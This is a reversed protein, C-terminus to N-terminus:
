FDLHLRLSFVCVPGRDQNYGPNVIRQVDGSASVGRWLHATYYGEVISERAYHLDGDGLIFGKGGLRLYTEHEQSIGNSVFALGVKDRARSWREGTYDLGFAVTDNAETYAFSEFHPENWGWRAFTRLVSSLPQEVNVGFGYKIRGQQRTLEIVPTGDVGNAVRGIAERYDGMNAHNVYSLVRVTGAAGRMLRPHLELELNEARARSINWDLDIGNAVKPMLMEGFRIAWSRDHYEVLAGWTYGRTDAAYDYAGNNDITWNTFQLRSDSGVANLDFFDATGFKGAWIDLRRVSAARAPGLSNPETTLCEDGLPITHFILARALYPAAGLTPNRVVDLNTFGALGLADSIGSGGASELHLLVSTRDTLTLGTLLTMLTSTAHESEPRLSNEGTYAARFAPHMQFIINIQGSLWFRSAAPHDFIAAPEREDPSPPAPQQAVVMQGALVSLLAICQALRM